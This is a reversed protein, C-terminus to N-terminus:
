SVEAFRVAEVAPRHAGRGRQIPVPQGRGTRVRVEELRAAGRQEAEGAVVPLRERGVDDARVGVAERLPGCPEEPIHNDAQYVLAPLEFQIAVPLFAQQCKPM